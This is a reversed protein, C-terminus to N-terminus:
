RRHGVPLQFPLTLMQQWRKIGKYTTILILLFIGTMSVYLLEDEGWKISFCAAIILTAIGVVRLGNKPDTNLKSYDRLVYAFFLPSLAWALVWSSYGTLGMGQGAILLLSVCLSSMLWNQVFRRLLLNRLLQNRDQPAIPTLCLLAQERRTRHLQALCSLAFTTSAALPILLLLFGLFFEGDHKNDGFALLVSYILILGAMLIDVGWHMGPGLGISMLQQPSHSPNRIVANLDRRYFFTFIAQLRDFKQWTANAEDNPTAQQLLHGLSKFIKIHRDGGRPFSSQLCIWAYSIAASMEALSLFLNAEHELAFPIWWKISSFITFFLVYYYVNYAWFVALTAVSLAFFLPFHGLLLGSTASFILSIALCLLMALRQIKEHIHPVTCSNAPSNQLLFGICFVLWY